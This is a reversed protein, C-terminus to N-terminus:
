KDVISYEYVRGMADNSRLKFLLLTHEDQVYVYRRDWNWNTDIFWKKVKESILIKPNQQDIWDLYKTKSPIDNKMKHPLLYVKYKYMGHPLKEVPLLGTNLIDLQNADPISVYDIKEDLDKVIFDLVNKDNTYIDIRNREIRKTYSDKDYLSLIHALKSIYVKNVNAKVMNSHGYVMGEALGIKDFDKLKEVSNIRMISIGPIVLSVKYIWKNYFKRSTYKTKIM